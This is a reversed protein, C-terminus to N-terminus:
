CASNPCQSNNISKKVIRKMLFLFALKKGRTCRLRWFGVERNEEIQCSYTLLMQWSNTISNCLNRTLDGLNEETVVPQFFNIPCWAKHWVIVELLLFLKGLFFTYPSIGAGTLIIYQLSPFPSCTALLM